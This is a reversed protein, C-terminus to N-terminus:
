GYGSLTGPSTEALSYNFDLTFDRRTRQELYRHLLARRSRRFFYTSRKKEIVVQVAIQERDLFRKSRESMEDLKNIALLRRRV